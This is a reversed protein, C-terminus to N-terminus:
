YQELAILSCIISISSIVQSFTYKPSEPFFILSLGCILSPLGCALLFFRWPKYTVQIIPIFFSWKQNIILWAMIPIFLSFAGFFFSSIMMSRSRNKVGLFEGLYAFITSTSGSISNLFAAHSQSSEFVGFRM